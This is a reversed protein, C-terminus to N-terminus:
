EGTVQIRSHEAGLVTIPETSGAPPVAFVVVSLWTIALNNAVTQRGLLSATQDGITLTSDDLTVTTVTQVAGVVIAGGDATAIAYPGSDHPQYTETLSGKDVVLGAYADRTAAIGARLPDDTFSAAHPSEAGNALVDVYRAVVSEPSAVLSEADPAVPSSGIEPQATAPVAVGPFLRAWSWMRYPERPGDQVLTLLLPAQLDAPSETIVMVTRPWTDTTPAVITQAVSPVTTIAETNGALRLAYEITRMTRAPGTLRPDLLDPNFDAAEAEQVTANIDELVEAVQETSIAPPMAAPVADPSPAPLPSSCASLLLGALALAGAVTTRRRSM